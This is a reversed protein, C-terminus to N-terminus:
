PSRDSPSQPIRNFDIGAAVMDLARLYPYLPREFALSIVQASMSDMHSPIPHSCSSIEPELVRVAITPHEKRMVIPNHQETQDLVSFRLNKCIYPIRYFLREFKPTISILREDAKVFSM